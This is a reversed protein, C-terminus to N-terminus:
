LVNSSLTVWREATGVDGDKDTVEAKILLTKGLVQDVPVADDVQFRLGYLKCYGGEDPDFTFIVTFPSIDLNLEKVNGTLKTISGSQRLNKMRLAVWIHHGGQPGAEIQAVEYDNTPLYDAQGKGVFLAPPGDGPKCVDAKGKAWDARYAELLAPSVYSVVCFGDSCTNVSGCSPAMSGACASSLDVRLLLSRGAIVTSKARRTLLPAPFSGFAEIAIEVDTGDALEDFRFELPITFPSAGDSFLDEDSAIAGDIKRVVHLRLIDVGVRLDSTVGFIISGQPPKDEGSCGPLLVLLAVLLSLFRVVFRM